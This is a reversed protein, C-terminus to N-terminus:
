DRELILFEVRRNRERNKASNDLVVPKSEGFGVAELRAPAIGKSELYRKVSEARRQSLILHKNEPGVSDTHGAIRMLKIESHNKMVAAIQDLLANSKALISDKGTEFYVKDLIEIQEAKVIVLTKGEDPCGDEDDVGNVVEAANPCVDILDNLGDGDSDIVPLSAAVPISAPVSAPESAPESAPLSVPQAVPESAPKSAPASAPKPREWTFELGAFVRLSPAGYGPVIGRGVGLTAKLLPFFRWSVGADIELPTAQVAMFNRLSTRAHLEVFPRLPLGYRALDIAFAARAYLEQGLRLNFIQTEERWLYGLNFSLEAIWFPVTLDVEAGFTVTRDGSFVTKNGTPLTLSATVALDVKHQDRLLLGVKPTLRLDGFAATGFTRGATASTLDPIEGASYLTVPVELGIALRDFLSIAGLLHADLRHEVLGFARNGSGDVLQLPQFAYNFFLAARVGLSPQLRASEVGFDSNAHPSPRVIQVDFSTQGFASTAFTLVAM